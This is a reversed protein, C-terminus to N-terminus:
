GASPITFPPPVRGEVVIVAPLSDQGFNPIPVRVNFNLTLTATQSGITATVISTVRETKTYQGVIKVTDEDFRTGTPVQNISYVPLPYGKDVRPIRYDAFSGLNTDIDLETINWIPPSPETSETVEFTWTYTKPTGIGNDATVVMNWIGVEEPAGGWTRTNSDFYMGPLHPSISYAPTPNGSDVAPVVVSTISRGRAARVPERSTYM